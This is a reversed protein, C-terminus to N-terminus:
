SLPMQGLMKRVSRIAAEAFTAVCCPGPSVPRKPGPVDIKDNGERRASLQRESRAADIDAGNKRSQDIKARDNLVM